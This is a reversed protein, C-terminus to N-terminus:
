DDFVGEDFAVSVGPPLKYVSRTHYAVYMPFRLYYGYNLDHVAAGIAKREDFTQEGYPKGLVDELFEKRNYPGRSMARVIRAKLINSPHPSGDVDITIRGEPYKQTPKKYVRLHHPIIPEPEPLSILGKEHLKSLTTEIAPTLNFPSRRLVNEFIKLASRIDPNQELYRQSRKETLQLISNLAPTMGELLHRM